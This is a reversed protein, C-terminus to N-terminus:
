AMVALYCSAAHRGNEFLVDGLMGSRCSAVLFTHGNEWATNSMVRAVCNRERQEHGMAFARTFPINVPVFVNVINRSVPRQKEPMRVRIDGFGDGVLDQPTGM